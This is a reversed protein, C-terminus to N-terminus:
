QVNVKQAYMHGKSNTYLKWWVTDVIKYYPKQKKINLSPENM